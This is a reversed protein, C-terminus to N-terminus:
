PSQRYPRTEAERSLMKALLDVYLFGYEVAPEIQLCYCWDNWGSVFLIEPNVARAQLLQREFSKGNERAAVVQPSHKRIEEVNVPKGRLRDIFAHEMYGDCGPNVVFCEKDGRPGIYEWPGGGHIRRITLDNKFEEDLKDLPQIVAPDSTNFYPVVLPKGRHRFYFDRHALHTKIYELAFRYPEPEPTGNWKELWVAMQLKRSENEQRSLEDALVQLSKQKGIDLLTSDAEIRGTEAFILDVGARRLWQFHQRVVKPDDTKYDGLVPRYPGNLERILDWDHGFFTEFHTGYWVAVSGNYRTKLAEDANM